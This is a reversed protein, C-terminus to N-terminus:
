NGEKPIDMAIRIEVSYAGDKDKTPWVAMHNIHGIKNDLDVHIPIPIDLERARKCFWLDSGGIAPNVSWGVRHWDNGMEEIVSRKVLMGANGCAPVQIMGSKGEIYKWGLNPHGWGVNTEILDHITPEYKPNRRLCLPAVIDVDRDLLRLLLNQDFVHDDGMIWLWELHKSALIAYCMNNFNVAISCGIEWTIPKPTGEPIELSHLCIDFERYRGMTSSAIGILGPGHKNM